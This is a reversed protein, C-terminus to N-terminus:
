IEREDDIKPVKYTWGRFAKCSVPKIKTWTTTDFILSFPAATDRPNFLAEDKLAFYGRWASKSAVFLRDGNPDKGLGSPFNRLNWTVETNNEERHELKQKLTEFSVYIGIDM